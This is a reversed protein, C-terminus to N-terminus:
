TGSFQIGDFLLTPCFTSGWPWPDDAVASLRQFIDLLNGSMNMESLARAREGHRYLAGRIGFSFDGTAPNSNGGVFGDVLIAEPLPAILDQWSREGKRVVWNSRGGTTPPVGLKRGYYVNIYYSRLVGEEIVAFPRATLGDGDWPRSALGRPLHPDDNLTLLPSAIRTGLRDALCSRHQHLSSGALAGGLVSLLRGTARNLLVMPYAGSAIPGAGLRDRVREAVDDAIRDVSPLDALYRTAYYSSAEPRRGGDQVATEGGLMFWADAITESFGNSTVRITESWGDSLSVASSIRHPMDRALVAEELREADDGRAPATRSEWAPDLADLQEPTAGPGCLSLPPLARDPDPELCRTAEVAGQVFGALPEARLDSTSHSSFKGDVMVSLSLGRSMAESAQEVRRDRRTLQVQASRVVGVTVEEAGAKKAIAVVGEALARL